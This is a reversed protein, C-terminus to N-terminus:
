NEFLFTKLGKKFCSLKPSKRLQEPIMNWLRPGVFSFSRCGYSSLRRHPICLLKQTASRLGRNPKYEKLLGQVYLSAAASVCKFVMCLIKHEIRRHVSLWHLTRLIPSVQATRPPRAVIRAGINQLRQLRQLQGQTAGAM